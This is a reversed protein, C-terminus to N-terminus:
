SRYNLINLNHNHQKIHITEIVMENAKNTQKKKELLLRCVLHEPTEHARLHTYSVAISSSGRRTLSVDDQTSLLLSSIDGAGNGRGAAININNNNHRLSSSLLADRFPQPSSWIPHSLVLGEVVPKLHRYWFGLPDPVSPRPGKEDWWCWWTPDDKM